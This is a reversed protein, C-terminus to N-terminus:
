KGIKKLFCRQTYTLGQCGRNESCCLPLWFLLATSLVSKGDYQGSKFGLGAVLNNDLKELARNGCTHCSELSLTKRVQRDHSDLSLIQTFQGGLHGVKFSNPCFTLLQPTLALGGLRQGSPGVHAKGERRITFSFPFHLPGTTGLDSQVNSNDSSIETKFSQIRSGKEMDVRNSNRLHIGSM